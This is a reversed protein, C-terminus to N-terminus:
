EERKRPDFYQRRYSSPSVGRLKKFVRCFYSHDSYGVLMSIKAISKDKEQLLEISKEIRVQTLYESFSQDNNDSFYNSLYSPNYHFRKGMETLNLPEAYHENIYDLLRRMNPQESKSPVAGIVVKANTLFEDLLSLAEKIDSAGDILSIYSYKEEELEKSEYAMNGLLMAVNFIINGLLAKFEFEDATYQHSLDEIYAELYLFAAEFHNRQFLETFKTLQFPGNAERASPLEDYIMVSTDPLFFRYQILRQLEKQYVKKLDFFKTFPETLVWGITTDVYRLSMSITKIFDKITQLQNLEFNVLFAIINETDPLRHIKIKTFNSKLEEEIEEVLPQARGKKHNTYAKIDIGLIGFHRHPFISEISALDKDSEFGTLLREMIAEIPITVDEGNSEVLVVGPIKRAAQKLANLLDAGELQPKLIYDTIGLQFTSRVYDFDGFSSLIIIEIQPYHEKIAKTLEVGDMVPMVMDTIVIHPQLNEILDLAEEGNAAEGIIQFGEKEWHLSHKIGQRILLEDDVILVKCWKHIPM